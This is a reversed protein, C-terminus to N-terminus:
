TRVSAVFDVRHNKAAWVGRQLLNGLDSQPQFVFLDCRSNFEPDAGSVGRSGICLPKAVTFHDCISSAVHEAIGTWGVRHTQVGLPNDRRPEFLSMVRSVHYTGFHNDVVNM